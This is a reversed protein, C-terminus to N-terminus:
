KEKDSALVSPGSEYYCLAPIRALGSISRWGTRGTIFYRIQKYLKANRRHGEGM